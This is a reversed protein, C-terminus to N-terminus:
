LSCRAIKNLREHPNKFKTPISCDAFNLIKNVIISSKPKIKIIKNATIKIVFPVISM